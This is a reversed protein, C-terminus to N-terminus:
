PLIFSIHRQFNDFFVQCFLYLNESVDAERDGANQSVTLLTTRIVIVCGALRTQFM